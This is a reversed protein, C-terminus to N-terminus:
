LNEEGRSGLQPAPSLIFFSILPVQAGLQPAMHELLIERALEEGKATLVPKPTRDFLKYGLEAEFGAIHMSIVSQARNLERAAASFSGTEAVAVFSRIEDIKLGM